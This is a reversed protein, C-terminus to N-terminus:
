SKLIELAYCKEKPFDIKGAKSDAPVIEGTKKQVVEAIYCQSDNILYSCMYHGPEGDLCSVQSFKPADKNQATSADLFGQFFASFGKDYRPDAALDTTETATTVAHARASVVPKHAFFAQKTVAITAIIIAGLLLRWSSM